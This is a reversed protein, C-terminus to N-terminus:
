RAKKWLELDNHQCSTNHQWSMCKHLVHGPIKLDSTLNLSLEEYSTKNLSVFITKAITRWGCVTYRKLNSHSYILCKELMHYPWVSTLSVWQSHFTALQIILTLMKNLRKEFSLIAIRAVRIPSGVRASIHYMVQLKWIRPWTSAEDRM